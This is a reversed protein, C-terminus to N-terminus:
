VVKHYLVTTSSTSVNFVVFKGVYKEELLFTTLSLGKLKFKYMYGFFQPKLKTVFKM